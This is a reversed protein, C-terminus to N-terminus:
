LTKLRSLAGLLAAQAADDDDSNNIAKWALGAAAKARRGSVGGARLLDAIDGAGDISKVSTVRARDNLGVAVLSVEHLTVAKLERADRAQGVVDPVYGVSLGRLAGASALAHAERGDASDLTLRGKAQLGDGIEAMDTWVGCPRHLDHHLLMAPMSGRARHDSLSKAFAGPIIRDGGFDVNDFAAAVGEITGADDLSKIQLPFARTQMM